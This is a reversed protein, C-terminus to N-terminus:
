KHEIHYAGSILHESTYYVSTIIEQFVAASVQNKMFVLQKNSICQKAAWAGSLHIIM